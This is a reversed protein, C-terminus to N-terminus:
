YARGGGFLVASARERELNCGLVSSFEEEHSLGFGDWQIFVMQQRDGWLRSAIAVVAGRMFPVTGVIQGTNRCWGAGYMVRDGIEFKIKM